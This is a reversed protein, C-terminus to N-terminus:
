SLKTQNQNQRLKAKASNQMVFETFLNTYSELWAWLEEVDMSQFQQETQKPYLFGSAMSVKGDIQWNLGRLLRPTKQHIIKKDRFEIVVKMLKEIVERLKPQIQFQYDSELIQLQEVSLKSFSEFSCNQLRGFYTELFHVTKDLYVKSFLYFSEIELQLKLGFQDFRALREEREKGAPMGVCCRLSENCKISVETAREKVLSLFAAYRKIERAANEVLCAREIPFQNQEARLFEELKDTIYPVFDAEM